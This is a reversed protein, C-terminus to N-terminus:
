NSPTVLSNCVRLRESKTFLYTYVELEEQEKGKQGKEINSLRREKSDDFEKETLPYHFTYDAWLLNYFNKTIPKMTNHLRTYPFSYDMPKMQMYDWINKLQCKEKCEDMARVFLRNILKLTDSREINSRSSNGRSVFRSDGYYGAQVIRIKEELSNICKVHVSLRILYEKYSQLEKLDVVEPEYIKDHDVEPDDTWKAKAMRVIKKMNCKNTVLDYLEKRLSKYQEGDKGQIQHRYRENWLSEDYLCINLRLPRHKKDVPELSLLDAVGFEVLKGIKLRDAEIKINEEPLTLVLAIQRDKDVLVERTIFGQNALIVIITKRILNLFCKNGSINTIPHWEPDRSSKKDFAIYREKAKDQYAAVVFRLSQLIKNWKM